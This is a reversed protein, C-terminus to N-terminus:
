RGKPAKELMDYIFHVPQFKTSIDSFYIDGTKSDIDLDDVGKARKGDVPQSINFLVTTKASILSIFCHQAVDLLLVNNKM